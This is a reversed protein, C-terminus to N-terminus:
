SSDRTALFLTTCCVVSRRLDDSVGSLSLQCVAGRSTCWKSLSGSAAKRAIGVVSGPALVMTHPGYAEGAEWTGLAGVSTAGLKVQHAPEFGQALGGGVGIAM